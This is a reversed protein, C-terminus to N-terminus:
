IAWIKRMRMRLSFNPTINCFLTNSKRLYLLFRTFYNVFHPLWLWSSLIWIPDWHSGCRRISNSVVWSYMPMSIVRKATYHIGMIRVSIVHGRLIIYGYVWHKTQRIYMSLQCLFTWYKTKVAYKDRGCFRDGVKLASKKFIIKWDYKGVCTEM